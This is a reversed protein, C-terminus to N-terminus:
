RPDLKGPMQFRSEPKFGAPIVVKEVKALPEGTLQNKRNIETFEETDRHSQPPLKTKHCANHPTIIRPEQSFYL